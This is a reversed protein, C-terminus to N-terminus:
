DYERLFAFVHVCSTPFREYGGVKCCYKVVKCGLCDKLTRDKVAPAGKLRMRAEKGNEQPWLFCEYCVQTLRPSDLAAALPRDIRFVEEGAPIQKSTFLGAGADPAQRAKIHSPLAM